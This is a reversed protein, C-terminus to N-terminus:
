AARRRPRRSRIVAKLLMSRRVSVGAATLELRAGELVEGRHRVGLAWAEARVEARSIWRSRFAELVTTVLTM